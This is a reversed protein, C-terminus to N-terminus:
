GSVHGHRCRGRISTGRKRPSLPPLSPVAERNGRGYGARTMTEKWTKRGTAGRPAGRDRTKRGPFGLTPPRGAFATRTDASKPASTSRGGRRNRDGQQVRLMPLRAGNVQSGDVVGGGARAAVGWAPIAGARVATTVPPRGVGRFAQGRSAEYAVPTVPRRASTGGAGEPGVGSLSCAAAGDGTSRDTGSVVRPPFPRPATDALDASRPYSTKPPSWRRTRRSM